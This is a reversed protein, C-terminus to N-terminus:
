PTDFGNFSTVRRAGCWLEAPEAEVLIRAQRVATVDDGAELESTRAFLGRRVHYLRYYPM